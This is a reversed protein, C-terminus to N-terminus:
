FNLQLPLLLGVVVFNTLTNRSQLVKNPNKLPSSSGGSSAVDLFAGRGGNGPPLDPHLNPWETGTPGIARYCIQAKAQIRSLRM